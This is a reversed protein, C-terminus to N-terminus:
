WEPAFSSVLIPDIELARLCDAKAQKADSKLLYAQGRNLYAIARTRRSEREGREIIQTCAHIIPDPDLLIDKSCDEYMDAWAGTVCLSLALAFTLAQKMQPEM